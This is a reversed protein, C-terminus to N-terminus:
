PRLVKFVTEIDSNLPFTKIGHALRHEADQAVIHNIFGKYDSIVGNDLLLQTIEHGTANPKIDLKITQTETQKAEDEKTEVQIEEVGDEIELVEPADPTTVQDFDEMAENNEDQMTEQKEM